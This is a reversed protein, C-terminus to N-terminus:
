RGVAPPKSRCVASRSSGSHSRFISAPPRVHHATRPVRRAHLAARRARLRPVRAGDDLRVVPHPVGRAPHGRPRLRDPARAPGRGPPVGRVLADPARRSRPGRVRAPERLPRHHFRRAPGRLQRREQRRTSRVGDCAERRPSGAPVSRPSVDSPHGHTLRPRRPSWTAAIASPRRGVVGASASGKPDGASSRFEEFRAAVSAGPQNADGPWPFAAFPLSRDRSSEASVIDRPSAGVLGTSYVFPLPKGRNKAGEPRNGCSGPFLCWIGYIVSAFLAIGMYDVLLGRGFGVKRRTM